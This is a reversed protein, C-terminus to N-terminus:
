DISEGLTGSKVFNFTEDSGDGRDTLERGEWNPHFEHSSGLTWWDVQERCMM